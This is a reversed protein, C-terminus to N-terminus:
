KESVFVYCAMWQLVENEFPFFTSDPAPMDEYIQIYKNSSFGAQRCEFIWQSSDRVTNNINIDSDSQSQYLEIWKKTNDSQHNDVLSMNYIAKGQPKLIRYGDKVGLLMKDQMSEFGGNSFVVDVTNDRLPIDSCNCALFVLDVYPNRIEETFYKRNWALIRHSLDTLIVTCRWNIRQIIYKNRERYWLCSTRQLLMITLLRVKILSILVLM